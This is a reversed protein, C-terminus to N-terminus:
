HEQAPRTEMTARVAEAIKDRNPLFATELPKSYPVPSDFGCVRQVPARLQGFLAENIRASVEAGIGLNRV